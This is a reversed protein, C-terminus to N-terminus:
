DALYPGDTAKIVVILSCDWNRHSTWDPCGRAVAERYGLDENLISDEDQTAPLYKMIVERAEFTPWRCSAVEMEM